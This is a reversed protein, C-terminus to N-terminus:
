CNTLFLSVEAVGLWIKLTALLSIHFRYALHLRQCQEDLEGGDLGGNM